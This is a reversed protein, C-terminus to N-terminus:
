KVEEFDVKNLDATDCIDGELKEVDESPENIKVLSALDNRHKELVDKDISALRSDIQQVQKTQSSREFLPRASEWLEMSKLMDYHTKAIDGLRLMCEGRSQHVDMHTFGELAVTFLNLATGEDDQALFTDGIFQLAKYIGLREKSKVSNALLLITWSTEHEPITWRSVDALKELCPSIIEPNQGLSLKICKEFITKASLMNGERLNLLGLVMDCVLIDPVRRLTNFTKRATDCKRQVNEKPVGLFVETKAVSVLAIAHNYPNHDASTEQLTKTHLEYAEAYESKAECIEALSLM